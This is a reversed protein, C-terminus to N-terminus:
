QDATWIRPPSAQFIQMNVKLLVGAGGAVPVAVGDGVVVGLLLYYGSGRPSMSGPHKSLLLLKFSTKTIADSQRFPPTM